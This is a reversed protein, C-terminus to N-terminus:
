KEGKPPYVGHDPVRTGSPLYSMADITCHKGITVMPAIKCEAGITSHDGIKVGAAIKCAAGINVGQGIKVSALFLKDPTMLHGSIATFAGILSGSQIEIFSHDGLNVDASISVDFAIKAGLAKHSLFRLSAFYLIINKIPQLSLSRSLSFYLLWLVFASSNPVQYHGKKLPPLCLRLAWIEILLLGIFVGVWLPASLWFLASPLTAFAARMGMVCIWLSLGYLGTLLAALVLDFLLFNRWM